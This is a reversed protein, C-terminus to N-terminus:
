AKGGMVMLGVESEPNAQVKRNFIIHVADAQAQLRTAVPTQSDTGKQFVLMYESHSEVRTIEMSLM